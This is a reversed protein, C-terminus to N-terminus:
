YSESIYLKKRLDDKNKEVVIFASSAASIETGNNAYLLTSKSNDIDVLYVFSPAKNKKNMVHRMFSFSDIHSTIIFQLKNDVMFPQLNDGGIFDM